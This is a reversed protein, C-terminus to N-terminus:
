RKQQLNIKLEHSQFSELIFLCCYMLKLLCFHQQGFAMQLHVRALGLGQHLAEEDIIRLTDVVRKLEVLSPKILRDEVM